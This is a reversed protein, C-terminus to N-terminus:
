FKQSLANIHQCLGRPLKFCPMSYVPVAQAVSKILVDKGGASLLKEMWGKVKNWVRYKLYKFAGNKSSGVDSPMGLYKDSLSENPVNLANMVEATASSCCCVQAPWFLSLRVIKVLM